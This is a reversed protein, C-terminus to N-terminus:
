SVPTWGRVDVEGERGVGVGNGTGWGEMGETPSTETRAGGPELQSRHAPETGLRQGRAKKPPSVMLHLPEATPLLPSPSCCSPSPVSPPQFLLCVPLSRSRRGSAAEELFGGRLMGVM